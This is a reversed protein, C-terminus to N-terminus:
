FNPLFSGRFPALLALLALIVGVIGGPRCAKDEIRGLAYKKIECKAAGFNILLGHEIRSAGLYGLIQAVHEDALASIAAKVESTPSSHAAFLRLFRM